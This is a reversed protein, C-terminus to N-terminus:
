GVRRAATPAKPNTLLSSRHRELEDAFRRIMDLPGEALVAFTRPNKPLVEARLDALARCMEELQQLTQQIRAENEIM